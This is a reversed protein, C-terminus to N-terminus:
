QHNAISNTCTICKRRANHHNSDEPMLDAELIGCYWLPRWDRSYCAIIDLYCNALNGFRWILCRIYAGLQLHLRKRDGSYISSIDLVDDGTHIQRSHPEHQSIYCHFNQLHWHLFLCVSFSPPRAQQFTTLMPAKTPVPPRWDFFLAQGICDCGM